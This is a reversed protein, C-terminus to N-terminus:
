LLIVQFPSLFVLYDEDEDSTIKAHESWIGDSSTFIYASGSLEGGDDDGLASVIATDDSISVSFGFSDNEEADSATLKVQESWIGDSRTFIYASGSNAGNDDDGDAGIIATDGSISVSRGFFDNEEADSATLKIQESWVGGSRTFVYTSGLRSFFASGLRSVIATDGSISVSDGFNEEPFSGPIRTITIAFVNHIPITGAMLIATLSIVLITNVPYKTQTIRM